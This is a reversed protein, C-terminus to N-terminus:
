RSSRLAAASIAANGCPDRDAVDAGKRGEDPGSDPGGSDPEDSDPWDLRAPAGGEWEWRLLADQPM